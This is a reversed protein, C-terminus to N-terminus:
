PTKELLFGLNLWRISDGLVPIRTKSLGMPMVIIERFRTKIDATAADTM